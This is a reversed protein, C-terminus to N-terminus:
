MFGVSNPLEPRRARARTSQRASAKAVAAVNEGVRAHGRSCVSRWSGGKRGALPVACEAM